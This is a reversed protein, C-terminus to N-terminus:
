DVVALLIAPQNMLSTWSAFGQIGSVDDSDDHKQDDDVQYEMEQEVHDSSARRPQSRRLPPNNRGKKHTRAYCHPWIASEPARVITSDSCVPSEAVGASGPAM